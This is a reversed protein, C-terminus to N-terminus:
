NATKLECHATQGIMIETSLFYGVKIKVTSLDVQRSVVQRSGVQRSGVQRSGVQKSGVIV